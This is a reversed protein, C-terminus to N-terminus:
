EEHRSHDDNHDHEVSKCPECEIQVTSHHIGQGRVVGDIETLLQQESKTSVDVVVHVSLVDKGATLSWVHLDHIAKVGAIGAVGREIKDLDINTPVGQLLVNVSEKLLTWTRPLVWLGIGVAVVSDIWAFGTWRMLLAAGIVGVSGLMDSWVELYAGKMNLSHESGGRLLRMGILNVILGLVAVVLMVTTPIAIPARLREVAEYLIYLAVLFLVSANYAAALIEFRQYGFTRKRDAARRGIRIAMLSVALAAVDTFMHAADSLLALSRTIYAAILEAVLFAGTLGLVIWLRKENAGSSPGHSHGAGM